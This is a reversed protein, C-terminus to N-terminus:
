GTTIQLSNKKKSFYKDEMYLKKFTIVKSFFNYFKRETFTVTKIYTQLNIYMTVTVTIM